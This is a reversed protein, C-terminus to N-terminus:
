KIPRQKLLKTTISNKKYLETLENNISLKEIIETDTLNIIETDKPLIWRLHLLASSYFSVIVHYTRESILEEICYDHELEIFGHKLFMLSEENRSRHHKKFFLKHDPYNSKLHDITQEIKESWNDKIILWFPQDLFLINKQLSNGQAPSPHPLYIDRSNNVTYNVSSPNPIFFSSVKSHDYGLAHGTFPRYKSTIYINSLLLKITDKLFQKITSKKDLYAAVGDSYLNFTCKNFHKSFFIRNCLPWAIDSLFIQNSRSNSIQKQLDNLSSEIKQHSNYVSGGTYELRILNSFSTAKKTKAGGEVIAINLDNSFYQEAILASEYLHYPTHCIFYNTNRQNEAATIPM